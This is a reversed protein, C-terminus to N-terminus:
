RFRRRLEQTLTLVNKTVAIIRDDGASVSGRGDRNSTLLLLNGDRGPRITRLRGFESKHHAILEMEGSPEDYLFQYLAKGRLGTFLLDPGVFLASGPAWTEDPGSQMVPPIMGEETEDGKVLPWGYNGGREILNIEDFGSGIGSPGHETSWLRGRADWALGQPNRHGFSWVPNEFPNDRPVSGDDNLRLIKGALSNRDQALFADGADGTTVYLKGDPGFAIRGGDHFQAGPINQIITTRESLTGDRYRYRVIRNTLGGGDKTTMYLYLYGNSAFDPHLAMGLLGGEGVHAVGEVEHTSGDEGIRVLRGPRETVLMDGGPLYVAEWPIELGETLVSFTIGTDGTLAGPVAVSNEPVLETATYFLLARYRYAQVLGLVIAAVILLQKFTKMAGTYCFVGSPMTCKRHVFGM